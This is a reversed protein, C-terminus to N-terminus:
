WDIVKGKMDKPVETEMLSLITPAIDLISLGRLERTHKRDPEKILFIGHWDRVADDPGTDNEDLYIANHGVTGAPRLQLDDFFALIDPVDGECKEKYIGEASDAITKMPKGDPGPIALLKRILIQRENEFEKQPILGLEERGKVNLFVRSYYGGWAWAKTKAWDVECKSLSTPKEPYSKLVLYGEKILWENICFCGKMAKAGHDSVILVATDDDVAELLEGIKKDLFQYYKLMEGEYKNGKEYKKHSKDFYKWFAHHMRDPGMEVVMAFDWEKSKMLHGMLKFRAETMDYIQKLVGDRDETRFEEVDFMYGPTARLVEDKLEPPYTFQSELSPTLFCTVMNGNLPKPPYTQPVGVIISKKGLGSLIDWVTKEKIESSNAIMIESYSNGKRNRFGYVGLKNPPKGTMMCMWAPCTIPPIVTKLKGFAGESAIKKINPLKELWKDFVLQPTACDLGIVLVKGVM